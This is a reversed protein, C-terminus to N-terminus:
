GLGLARRKELLFPMHHNQHGVAIQVLEKLTTLGRESHVSQRSWAEAPLKRLVRILQGRITRIGALEEAPEREQYHLSAAYRTEDYGMLLARDMAITRKIRDALVQESDALHSLLELASWKGAVPRARLQDPTLDSVVKALEQPGREYAALLEPLAESAGPYPNAM